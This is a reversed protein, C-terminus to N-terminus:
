ADASTRLDRYVPEPSVARKHKESNLIAVISRPFLRHDNALQAITTGARYAAFIERNRGNASPKTAM